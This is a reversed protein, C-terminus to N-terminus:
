MEREREREARSSATPCRSSNALWSSVCIKDLFSCKSAFCSFNDSSSFCTLLAEEHDEFSLQFLLFKVFVLSNIFPQILSLILSRSLPSQLIFLWSLRSWIFMVTVIKLKTTEFAFFYHVLWRVVHSQGVFPHVTLPCFMIPTYMM